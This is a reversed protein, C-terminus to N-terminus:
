MTSLGVARILTHNLNVAGAEFVSKDCLTFYGYLNEQFGFRTNPSFCKWLTKVTIFVPNELFGKPTRYLIHNALFGM